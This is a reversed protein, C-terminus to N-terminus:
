RSFCGCCFPCLARAAARYERHSPTSMLPVSRGLRSLALKSLSLPAGLLYKLPQTAEFSTSKVLVTDTRWSSSDCLEGLVTICGDEGVDQCGAVIVDCSLEAALTNIGAILTDEKVINRQRHNWDFDIRADICLGQYQRQMLSPPSFTM